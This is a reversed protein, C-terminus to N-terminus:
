EPLMRRGAVVISGTGPVAHEFGDGELSSERLFLRFAPHQWHSLGPRVIRELDALLDDIPEASRPPEAPLQKKIDGPHALSM